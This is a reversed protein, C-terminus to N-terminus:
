LTCKNAQPATTKRIGIKITVMRLTLPKLPHAWSLPKALTTAVLELKKESDDLRTQMKEMMKVLQALEIGRAM